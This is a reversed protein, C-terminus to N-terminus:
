PVSLLETGQIHLKDKPCVLSNGRLASTSFVVLDAVPADRMANVGPGSLSSPAHLRQLWGGGVGWGLIKGNDGALVTGAPIGGM